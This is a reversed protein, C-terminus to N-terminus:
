KSASLPTFGSSSLCNVCINVLRNLYIVAKCLVFAGFTEQYLAIPKGLDEPRRTVDSIVQRTEGIKKKGCDMEM